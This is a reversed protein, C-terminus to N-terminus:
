TDTLSFDGQSHNRLWCLLRSALRSLCASIPSSLDTRSPDRLQACWSPVAWVAPRLAVCSRDWSPCPPSVFHLFSRCWPESPLGSAPWVCLHGSPGFDRREFRPNHNWIHLLYIGSHQIIRCRLNLGPKSSPLGSLVQLFSQLIYLTNKLRLM